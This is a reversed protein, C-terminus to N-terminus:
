IIYRRYIYIIYPYNRQKKKRFNLACFIRKYVYIYM